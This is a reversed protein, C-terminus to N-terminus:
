NFSQSALEDLRSQVQRYVDPPMKPLGKPLRNRLAKPQCVAIPAKEVKLEVFPNTFVVIPHVVINADKDIDNAVLEKILSACGKAREIPDGLKEEVFYRMARGPTIKQRWKGDRYTFEGELNVTELVAIGNPMLLVHDCPFCYHYLRYQDNASKLAQNLTDEPRPKKVWRNAYYIGTVSIAFGLVLIVATLTSWQPKWLSIAVSALIALLGGLSAAHSLRARRRISEQDIIVKM